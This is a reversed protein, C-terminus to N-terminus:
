KGKKKPPFPFPSQGEPKKDGPKPAKKDKAGFPKAPFGM